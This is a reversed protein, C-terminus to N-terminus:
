NGGDFTYDYLAGRQNEGDQAPDRELQIAVTGDGWRRWAFSFFRYEGEGPNERIRINLGTITAPSQTGGVYLYSKSKYGGEPKLSGKEEKSWVLNAAVAADLIERLEPSKAPTDQAIANAHILVAFAIIGRTALLPGPRGLACKSHADV